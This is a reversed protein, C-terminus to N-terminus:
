GASGQKWTRQSRAALEPRIRILACLSHINPETFGANGHLRLRHSSAAEHDNLPQQRTLCSVPPLRGLETGRDGGILQPDDLGGRMVAPPDSLQQCGVRGQAQLDHIRADNRQGPPEVQALDRGKVPPVKQHDGRCRGFPPRSIKSGASQALL